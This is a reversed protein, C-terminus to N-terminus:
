TRHYQFRESAHLFNFYQIDYKIIKFIEVQTKHKRM